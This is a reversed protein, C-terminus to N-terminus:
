IDDTAGVVAISCIFLMVCQFSLDQLFVVIAVPVFLLTMRIFPIAVRIIIVSLFLILCM